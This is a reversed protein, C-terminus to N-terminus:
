LGVAESVDLKLHRAGVPGNQRVHSASWRFNSLSKLRRAVSIKRQETAFSREAWEEAAHKARTLNVPGSLGIDPWVVRYLGPEGDPVIEVIPTRARGHFLAHAQKSNNSQSNLAPEIRGFQFEQRAGRDGATPNASNRFV